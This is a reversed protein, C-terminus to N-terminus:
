PRTFGAPAGTEVHGPHYMDMFLIVPEAGPCRTEYGDIISGYVGPGFNGVREFAPASGDPCRLSRLYARQGEPMNTRIPNERSGLPHASAAAIRADLQAGSVRGGGFLDDLDAQASPTSACGAAAFAMLASAIIVSRM